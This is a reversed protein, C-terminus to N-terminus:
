DVLIGIVMTIKKKNNFPSIEITYINDVCQNDLLRTLFPQLKVFDGLMMITIRFLKRKGSVSKEMEISEFLFGSNKGSEKIGSLVNDIKCNNKKYDNFNFGKVPSDALKPKLNKATNLALKYVPFLIKQEAKKESLKKLELKKEKYIKYDPYIFFFIFILIVSSCLAYIIIDQLPIKIKKKAM